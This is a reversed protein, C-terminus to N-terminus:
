FGRLASKMLEVCAACREEKVGACTVISVGESVPEESLCRRMM